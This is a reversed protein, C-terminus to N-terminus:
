ASASPSGRSAVVAGTEYTKLTKKTVRVDSCGCSSRVSAVRVDWLYSNRLEFAFEAKSGAAVTGFNHSTTEFMERAWKAASCPVVCVGVLLWLALSRSLM